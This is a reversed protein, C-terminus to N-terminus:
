KIRLVYFHLIELCQLDVHFSGEMFVQFNLLKKLDQNQFVQLLHMQRTYRHIMKRDKGM